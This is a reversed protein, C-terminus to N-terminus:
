AMTPLQELSVEYRLPEGNLTREFEDLMFDAMRVVERGMSGAIHPSLWVNPLQYLPSTEAIPEQQAVDLLATIDKREKLVEIMGPEDVTAGRGTNIFTSGIPMSSFHSTQLMNETEPVNALHNSVVYGREFAASLSVLSVGLKEAESKSLFPDFVLINIDHYSLRRIVERGVMGAGLISVEIDYNGSSRTPKWAPAGEIMLSRSLRFYGKAALTMQAATFEAVPIANAAWASVVRVGQDLFPEAFYKVTGAAYLVMKLAPLQRIVEPKLVPMGWTSFIYEVESLQSIQEQLNERSVVESHIETLEKLRNVRSEPFVRDLLDQRNCFFAAKPKNM